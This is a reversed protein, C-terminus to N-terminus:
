TDRTDKSRIVRCPEQIAGSVAGGKLIGIYRRCIERTARCHLRRTMSQHPISSAYFESRRRELTSQLQSTAQTYRCCGLRSCV